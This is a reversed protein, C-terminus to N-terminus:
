MAEPRTCLSADIASLHDCGLVNQNWFTESPCTMLQPGGNVCLYYQQCNTSPYYTHDVICNWYRCSTIDVAYEWNCGPLRQDFLSGPACMVLVPEGNDCQWYKNCDVHAFYMQDTHKCDPRHGPLPVTPRFTTNDLSGTAHSTLTTHEPRTTTSPVYTSHTPSTPSTNHVVTTIKPTTASTTEPTSTTTTTSLVGPYTCYDETGPPDAPLKFADTMTRIMDFSRGSCSSQFDDTDITWVMLGAYGLNKAFRAKIFASEPDDYGCWINNGSHYTYPECLDPDHVVTWNGKSQYECIENYGLTGPIRTYPGERGPKNAPALMGHDKIDDLTFCRGYTAMGLVLKEKPVGLELWYRAAFAVNFYIMDGQDAFYGKLPTNHHTRNEWAGHFDYAMVHLFDLNRVLGEVDYAGDITGKGGAVAATLLMGHEDLVERFEDLLKVFNKRDHPEGGRFGPYEWDVDLGDFNHAKALAVASTVFSRRKRPDNAMVSFDKSGENWGGVALITKLEKNKEKLATFRDFAGHGGNDYLENWPDLVEIEWTHNSLGAFGFVLHTCLTPDVDEVDFKGPGPRYVAWSSFYCTIVTAEVSSGVLAVLILYSLLIKM